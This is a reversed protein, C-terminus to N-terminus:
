VARPDSGPVRGTTLGGLDKVTRNYPLISCRITRFRWRWCRRRRTAPGAARNARARREGRPSTWRRHLARSDERVRVGPSRSRRRRRAVAHAPRRRAGHFRLAAGDGDGRRRSAISTQTPAIPSSCRAPRRASRWWTVRATTRRTAGRGSTSRSSTATTSTSRFAPPSAPRRTAAWGCAISTCARSTRSCWRLQRPAGRLEKRRTRLRADAYPDAGAPLELEPRSVRLFRCRIETPSRARKTPASSTTLFPLLARRTPRSRVCRM